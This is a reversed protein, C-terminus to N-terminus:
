RCYLWIYNIQIKTKVLLYFLSEKKSMISYIYHKRRGNDLAFSFQTSRPFYALRFSIAELINRFLVDVSHNFLKARIQRIDPFNLM